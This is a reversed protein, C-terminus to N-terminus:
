ASSLRAPVSAAARPKQSFPGLEEVLLSLAASPHASRLPSASTQGHKSNRFCFELHGSPFPHPAAKRRLEGNCTQASSCAPLDALPHERQLAWPFDFSPAGMGAGEGAMSFDARYCPSAVLIYCLSADDPNSLRWWALQAPERSAPSSQQKGPGRSWQSKRKRRLSPVHSQAARYAVLHAEQPPDMRGLTQHSLEPLARLVTISVYHTRQQKTTKNDSHSRPPSKRLDELSNGESVEGDGGGGRSGVLSHNLNKRDLVAM